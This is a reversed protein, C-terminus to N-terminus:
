ENKSIVYLGLFILLVPWFKRIMFLDIMGLNSLLFLAGIIIIFLGLYYQSSKGQSEAKTQSEGKLEKAFEHVTDKIEKVNQKLTESGETSSQQQSSPLIIWLIIYLLVGSGGFITLLIFLFRVVNPDLDFYAAVGAAVGGLMKRSLDRTLEKQKSSTM